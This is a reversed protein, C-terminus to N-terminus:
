AGSGERMDAPAREDYCYDAFAEEIACALEHCHKAFLVPDAACPESSLRHQAYAYTDADYTM